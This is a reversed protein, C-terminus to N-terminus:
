DGEGWQDADRYAKTMAGHFFNKTESSRQVQAASYEALSSSKVLQLLQSREKANARESYQWFALTVMWAAFMLWVMM